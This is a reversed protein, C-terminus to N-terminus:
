KGVGGLERVLIEQVTTHRVASQGSLELQMVYRGPETFVSKQPWNFTVVGNASDTIRTLAPDLEVERNRSDLMKVRATTFAGLNEPTGTRQNRIEFSWTGSPRDGVWFTKTEM